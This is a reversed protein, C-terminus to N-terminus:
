NFPLGEDNNDPVEMFGDPVAPENYDNEDVAPISNATAKVTDAMAKAEARQNDELVQVCQFAARSYTIGDASKEKKLTIKTVVDYCRLGKLIIKKGIYDRIYKLSTPPLALILPVPNGEQLIYCRHVNKCAKGKGGDSGFQNHPCNSCQVVAGTQRNVGQKGDYSSCDPQENNGSYKNAWYVNVPHHTLIVGVIETATVPSDETEGPLEFALGGGSPIKVREFPITGLGDMEESVAEALEGGLTVLNFKQGEPQVAVENKKAM